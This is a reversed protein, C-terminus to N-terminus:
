LPIRYALSIGLSFMYQPRSSAEDLLPDTARDQAPVLQRLPLHRGHGTTPSGFSRAAPWVLAQAKLQPHDAM